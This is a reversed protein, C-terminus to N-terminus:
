VKPAQKNDWTEQARKMSLLKALRAQRDDKGADNRLNNAVVKQTPAEKRAPMPLQSLDKFEHKLEIVIPEHNGDGHNLVAFARGFSSSVKLITDLELKPVVVERSSTTQAFKQTSTGGLVKITEGSLLQLDEVDKKGVVTFYIKTSTGEFVVDALNVDRNELQSTTQNLLIFSCGFKRSQALLAGVNPGVIAQFEDIIIKARRKPKGLKTRRMAAQVATYLGLGAVIRASQPETLTPLFFYIVESEELARDFLIDNKLNGSESLQPYEKLFHFALRVQDADKFLKRNGPADLFESVDDLTAEKSDRSLRRAVSLLAACNQATYYAGGYVLGHDMHMATVLFTAIGLVNKEGPIVQLAPFHDSDLDPDLTLYRFRRGAREALYRATHFLSADGGLDFVFIPDKETGGDATYPEMLQAILPIAGMSTKGSGTMGRIHVHGLKARPIVFPKGTQVVTGLRIESM